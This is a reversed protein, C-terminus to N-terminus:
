LYTAASKVLNLLGYTKEVSDRVFSEPYLVKHVLPAPEHALLLMTKAGGVPSFCFLLLLALM